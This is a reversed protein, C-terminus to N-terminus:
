KRSLTMEFFQVPASAGASRYGKEVWSGEKVLAVYKIGGPASWEFGGEELVTLPFEGYHGNAFSRFRYANQKEDWAIVAFAEFDPKADPAAEKSRGAGHVTLIVGDLMFAVEETQTLEHREGDAGYTWGEGRWEGALISLAAMKEKQLAVDPARYAPKEEAASISFSVLSFAVAFASVVKNM